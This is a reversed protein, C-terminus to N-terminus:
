KSGQNKTETPIIEISGFQNVAIDTKFFKEKEDKNLEM